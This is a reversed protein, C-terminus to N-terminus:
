LSARPLEGKPRSRNKFCEITSKRTLFHIFVFPISVGVFFLFLGSASFKSGERWIMLRFSVETVLSIFSALLGLDRGFEVFCLILVGGVVYYFNKFLISTIYLFMMVDLYLCRALLGRNFLNAYRSLHTQFLEQFVFTFHLTSVIGLLVMLVGLLYVTKKEM